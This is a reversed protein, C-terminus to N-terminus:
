ILHERFYVGTEKKILHSVYDLSRHLHRAVHKLSFGPRRFAQAMFTIAMATEMYVRREGATPALGGHAASYRQNDSSAGQM